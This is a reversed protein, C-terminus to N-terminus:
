VVDMLKDGMKNFLLIGFTVIAIMFVSSYIIQIGSIEGSGLLAYRFIEFQNSLPNINVLWKLKAPVLVLSYFVPCVFMLLNMILQMLSFLDKYKVTLIAFVLGAGFGIGATILIAPIAMLMHLGNLNIQHTFNFYCLVVILLLLQIGFLLSQLLLTSLPMILRPFYVKSFVAINSMYTRSITLFLESFLNWLTIGVLYYLFSPIGQTSIGIVKNFVLVYTLVTLLPKLIIWFPGLLTQQYSSLFEKRVLRFLLDKYSILEKISIGLWTTDPKIEWDWQQKHIM